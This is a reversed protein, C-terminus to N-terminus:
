IPVNIKRQPSFESHSPFSTILYSKSGGPCDCVVWAHQLLEQAWHNLENKFADHNVDEEANAYLEVRNRYAALKRLILQFVHDRTEESFEKAPFLRQLNESM